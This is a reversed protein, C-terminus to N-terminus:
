REKKYYCNDGYCCWQLMTTSWFLFGLFWWHDCFSSRSFRYSYPMCICVYANILSVHMCRSSNVLTCANGSVIDWEGDPSCIIEEISQQGNQCVHIINASGGLTTSTYPELYGDSPPSPDGCNVIVFLFRFNICCAFIYASLIFRTNVQQLHPVYMIQLILYGVEMETVGQLSYVILFFDM